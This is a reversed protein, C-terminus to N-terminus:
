PAGRSNRQLLPAGHATAPKLTQNTFAHAGTGLMSAALVGAAFLKAIRTM